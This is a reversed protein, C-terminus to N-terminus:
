KTEKMALALWNNPPQEIDLTEIKNYDAVSMWGPRVDFVTLFPYKQAIEDRNRAVIRVWLGGQGYDYVALFETKLVTM